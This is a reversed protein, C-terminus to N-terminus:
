RRSKTNKPLSSVMAEVSDFLGYIRGKKVDQLGELIGKDVIKKPTLIIENGEIKVELLDGINLGAKQRLATPLTVQYKNKVKVLSM